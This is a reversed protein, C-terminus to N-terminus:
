GVKPSEDMTYHLTSSEVFPNVTVLSRSYLRPSCIKTEYPGCLLSKKNHSHLNKIPKMIIIIIILKQYPPYRRFKQNQPPSISPNM